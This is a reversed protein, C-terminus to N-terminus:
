FNGGDTLTNTTWTTDARFTNASADYYIVSGEIKDTQVLDFGGGPGQPGTTTVSVTNTKTDEVVTTKGDTTVNVATM